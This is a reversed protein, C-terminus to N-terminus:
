SLKVHGIAKVNVQRTLEKFSLVSVEPHSSELLQRIRFRSAASTLVHASLGQDYVRQIQEGLAELIRAGTLAEPFGTEFLRELAPDLTIVQLLNTHDVREGCIASSLAARAFEALHVPDRTQDVHEALAELITVLDRICVREKVLLRLVKWIVILDAGKAALEHALPSVEKEQLRQSVQAVGLIKAAHIRVMETLQVAVVSVPDFIVCGLREADGRQHPSIWKGPMQYNPDLVIEGPLSKLKELPGIVLYQNVYITGRGVVCDSILITYDHAALSLSERFKVDPVILGLELALHRQISTVREKLKAGQGSDVLPQLRRGLHVELLEVQMLSAVSEPKPAEVPAPPPAPAPPAPVVAQIPRPFASWGLLGLGLGLWLWGFLRLPPASPLQLLQVGARDFRVSAALQQLQPFDTPSSCLLTLRQGEVVVLRDLNALRAAEILTEANQSQAQPLRIRQFGPASSAAWASLLISAAAVWLVRKPRPFKPESALEAPPPQHVALTPSQQAPAPLYCDSLTRAILDPDPPGATKNAGLRLRTRELNAAFRAALGARQLLSLSPLQRAAETLQDAQKQGLRSLCKASVEPALSALLHAAEQLNGQSAGTRPRVLLRPCALLWCGVQQLALLLPLLALLFILQFQNSLSWRTPSHGPILILSDGRATDLACLERLFGELQACREPSGNVTAVIHVPQTALVQIQSGPCVQQLFSSLPRQLALAEPPQSREQRVAQNAPFALGLALLALLAVLMRLKKSLRRWLPTRAVFLSVM